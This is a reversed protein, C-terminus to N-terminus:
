KIHAKDESIGRLNRVEDKYKKRERKFVGECPQEVGANAFLYDFLDHTRKYGGRGLSIGVKTSIELLQRIAWRELHKTIRGDKGSCDEEIVQMHIGLGSLVWPLSYKSFGAHIYRLEEETPETYKIIHQLAASRHNELYSHVGAKDHFKEVLMSLEKAKRSIKRAEEVIESNTYRAEQGAKLKKLDKSIRELASLFGSPYEDIWAPWDM